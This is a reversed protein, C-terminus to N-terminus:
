VTLWGQVLEFLGQPSPLELKLRSDAFICLSCLFFSLADCLRCLSTTEADHDIM